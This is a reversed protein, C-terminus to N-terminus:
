DFIQAAMQADKKRAPIESETLFDAIVSFHESSNAKNGSFFAAWGSPAEAKRTALYTRVANTLGTARVELLTDVKQYLEHRFYGYVAASFLSFTTLLILAYLLFVRTRVSSAELNRRRLPLPSM